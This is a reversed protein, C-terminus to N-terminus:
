FSAPSMSNLPASQFNVNWVMVEQLYAQTNPVYFYQPLPIALNTQHRLHTIVITAGLLLYSGLFM